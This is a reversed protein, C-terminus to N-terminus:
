EVVYNAPHGFTKEYLKRAPDWDETDFEGDSSVKFTGNLDALRLLVAGVVADYPKDGRTKCCAWAGNDSEIAFTEYDEDLAEDGNFLIETENVIPEGEGLPGKISVGSKAIIAKVDLVTEATLTVPGEWYHTYGM